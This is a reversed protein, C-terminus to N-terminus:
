WRCVVKDSYFQEIIGYGLTMGAFRALKVVCQTMHVPLVKPPVSERSFKQESAAFFQTSGQGRSRLGGM